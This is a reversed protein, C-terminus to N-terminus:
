TDSGKELREAIWVKIFKTNSMKAELTLSNNFSIRMKLPCRWVAAAPASGIPRAEPLELRNAPHLHDILRSL